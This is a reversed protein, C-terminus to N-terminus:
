PGTEPKPDLLDAVDALLRELHDFSQAPDPNAARWAATLDGIGSGPPLADAPNPRPQEDPDKIECM